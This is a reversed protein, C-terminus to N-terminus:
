RASVQMGRGAERTASRMRDVLADDLGAPDAIWRWNGAATGPVNVRAESGLGLWDQLQVLATGAPSTLVSDLAAAAIEHPGEAGLLRQALRLRETAEHSGGGAREVQERAWGLVPAPFALAGEPVLCGPRSWQGRANEFKHAPPPM